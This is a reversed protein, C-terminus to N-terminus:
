DSNNNQLGANTIGQTGLHTVLRSLGVLCANALNKVDETFTDNDSARKVIKKLRQRNRNDYFVFL